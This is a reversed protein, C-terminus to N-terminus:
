IINDSFDMMLHYLKLNSHYSEYLKHAELENFDNEIESINNTVDIKKIVFGIMGNVGYYSSYYPNSKSSKYSTTFRKIGDVVYATNLTKGGDLRKCEIVYYADHNENKLFENVNRIKIDVRGSNEDVEKEFLYGSIICDENRVKTNKMYDLLIDRIMNEDNSPVLIKDTIILIYCSYINLLLNKFEIEYENTAETYSSADLEFDLEAM